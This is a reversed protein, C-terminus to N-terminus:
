VVEYLSDVDQQDSSLGQSHAQTNMGYVENPMTDINDDTSTAIKSPSTIVRVIEADQQDSSLGQSHAQTNMGYVENPMTDINDDTSTAIRSPSTIVRVIKIQTLVLITTQVAYLILLMLIFVPQSLQSVGLRVVSWM